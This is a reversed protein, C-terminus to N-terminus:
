WCTREQIRTPSDLSPSRPFPTNESSPSMGAAARSAPSGAAARARRRTLRSLQRRQWKRRSASLLLRRAGSRSRSAWVGSRSTRGGAAPHVYSAGPGLEGVLFVSNTCGLERDAAPGHSHKCVDATSVAQVCFTSLLVAFFRRQPWPSACRCRADRRVLHVATETWLLASTTNWKHGSKSFLRFNILICLLIVVKGTLLTKMKIEIYM